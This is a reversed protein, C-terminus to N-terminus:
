RRILRHLESDSLSSSVLAMRQNKVSRRDVTHSALMCRVNHSASTLLLSRARSPIMERVYSCSKDPVCVNCRLQVKQPTVVLRLTCRTVRMQCHLVERNIAAYVRRDSALLMKVCAWLPKRFVLNGNWLSSLLCQM